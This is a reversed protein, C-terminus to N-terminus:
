TGVCRGARDQSAGPLVKVAPFAVPDLSRPGERKEAHWNGPSNEKRHSEVGTGWQHRRVQSGWCLVGKQVASDLAAGFVPEAGVGQCGIPRESASGM